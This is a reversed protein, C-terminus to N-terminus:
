KKVQVSYIGYEAGFPVNLVRVSTYKKYLEDIWKEADKISDFYRNFVQFRDPNSGEIQEIIKKGFMAVMMKRNDSIQERIMSIAAFVRGQLMADKVAQFFVSPDNKEEIIKLLESYLAM